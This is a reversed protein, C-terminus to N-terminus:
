EAQARGVVRQALVQFIRAAAAVVLPLASALILSSFAATAPPSPQSDDAFPLDIMLSLVIFPGYILSFILFIRVMNGKADAFANSATAGPADVAIAPFLIALRLAIYVLGVFLLIDLVITAILPSDLIVDNVLLIAATVATFALSWAFFRFFRADRPDLPYGRAVENLIIYRYVAICFPTLLFDQVADLGADALNGTLSPSRPVLTALVSRVIVIAVAIAVLRPMAAVVRALDGYATGVVRLVRPRERAATM